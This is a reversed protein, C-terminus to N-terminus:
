DVRADVTDDRDWDDTNVGAYISDNIERRNCDFLGWVLCNPNSSLNRIKSEIPHTKNGELVLDVFDLGGPTDISLKAHGTIYAHVLTM